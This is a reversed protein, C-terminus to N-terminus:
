TMSKMPLPCLLRASIRLPLEPVQDPRGRRALRERDQVFVVLLDLVGPDPDGAVFVLGTFVARNGNGEAGVRTPLRNDDGSRDGPM